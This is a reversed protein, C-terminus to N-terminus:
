NGFDDIMYSESEQKIPEKNILRVGRWGRINANKYKQATPFAEHLNRGIWEKTHDPTTDMEECYAVFATWLDDNTVISNADEVLQTELFASWPQSKTQWALRTREATGGDEFRGRVFLRAAGEILWNLIGAGERDTISNAWNSVREERPIVCEFPFIIWRDYFADPADQVVPTTNSSYYLKAQNVFSFGDKFKNQAYMLDRGVALLFPSISRLEQSSLDAYITALKGYLQAKAFKDNALEQLSAAAVNGRGIINEFVELIASKGTNAPGLLYFAKKYPNGAIFVYGLAEQFTDRLNEDPLAKKMAAEWDPCAANPDYDVPIRYTLKIKSSFLSPIPQTPDRLDLICNKTAFIGPPNVEERPVYHLRRIDEKVEDVFHRSAVLGKARCVKGVWGEVFTEARGEYIGDRYIYLTRDDNMAMFTYLGSLVDRFGPAYPKVTGQKDVSWLQEDDPASEVAPPAKHPEWPEVIWSPLLKGNTTFATDPLPKGGCLAVEARRIAPLEERCVSIPGGTSIYIETPITADPTSVSTATEPAM